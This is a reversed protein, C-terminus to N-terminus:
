GVRRAAMRVRRAAESRYEAAAALVETAESILARAEVACRSLRHARMDDRKRQGMVYENALVEDARLEGSLPFKSRLAEIWKAGMTTLPYVAVDRNGVGGANDDRMPRGFRAGREGHFAILTARLLRSQSGVLDLLTTGNGIRELTREDPDYSPEERQSKIKMSEGTARPIPRGDSDHGYLMARELMIGFTSHDIQSYGKGLAFEVDAQAIALRRGASHERM